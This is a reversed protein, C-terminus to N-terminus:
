DAQISEPAPAHEHSECAVWRAEGDEFHEKKWIPVREKLLDVAEHCAHFAEKRHPSATAVVLSIQGIDVTGIRHSIAMDEIGYKALVELRVKELESVAMEEYAEYELGLVQRGEAHNRTVGLFTVVGGNSDKRVLATIQEPDLPERTVTIMPQGGSVPPILAVEDGSHLVTSGEVYEANVAAVIDVGPPALQPFIDRVHAILDGVTSNEPLELPM